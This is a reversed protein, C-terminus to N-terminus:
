NSIEIILTDIINSIDKIKKSIIELESLHMSLYSCVENLFQPNNSELQVDLQNCLTNFKKNLKNYETKLTKLKKRLGELLIIGTQQEFNSSKM